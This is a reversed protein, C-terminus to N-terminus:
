LIPPPRCEMVRFIGSVPGGCGAMMTPSRLGYARRPPSSFPVVFLGGGGVRVFLGGGGVLVVHVVPVRGGGGILAVPVVLLGGGGVVPVRDPASVVVSRVQSAM